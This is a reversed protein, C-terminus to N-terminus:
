FLDELRKEEKELTLGEQNKKFDEELEPFEEMLAKFSNENKHKKKGELWKKVTEPTRIRGM